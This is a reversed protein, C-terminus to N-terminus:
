IFVFLTKFEFKQVVLGTPLGLVLHTSTTWFSANCSSPIVPHLLLASFLSSHLRRMLSALAWFSSYCWIHFLIRSCKCFKFLKMIHLRGLFELGYVSFNCRKRPFSVTVCSQKLLVAALHRLLDCQTHILREIIQLGCLESLLIIGLNVMNTVLLSGDM